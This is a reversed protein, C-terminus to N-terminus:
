STNELVKIKATNGSNYAITANAPTNKIPVATAYNKLTNIGLRHCRKSAATKKDRRKAQQEESKASRERESPLLLSTARRQQAQSQGLVFFEAKYDAEPVKPRRVRRLCNRKKVAVAMAGSKREDCHRKGAMRALAQTRNRKVDM